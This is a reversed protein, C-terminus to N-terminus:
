YGAKKKLMKWWFNRWLLYFELVKDGRKTKNSLCKKVTEIKPSLLNLYVFCQSSNEAKLVSM